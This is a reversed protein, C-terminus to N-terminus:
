ALAEAGRVRLVVAAPLRAAGAERGPTRACRDQLRGRIAAVYGDGIGIGCGARSEAGNLHRQGASVASVALRPRRARARDDGLCAGFVLALVLAGLKGGRAAPCKGRTAAGTACATSPQTARRAPARM